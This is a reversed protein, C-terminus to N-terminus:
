KGSDACPLGLDHYLTFYARAMTEASYNRAIHERARAGLRACREPDGMLELMLSALNEPNEPGTLLLCEPETNVGPIGGVDTSVVPLGCAMAELLALPLGEHRSSLVFVDMARLWAATDDRMGALHVAEGLDLERILAELHPREEGDGVLLLRARSEAARVRAFARLLTAHDKAEHLRGVTGFVFLNEGRAEPWPLSAGPGDPSFTEIDIGNPICVVKDAPIRLKRVVYDRVPETVCVIRGIGPAFLRVFMRLWGIRELEHTSHATHVLPVGALRAAPLAVPLVYASHTQVLKVQERVLLRRLIRIGGLRGHQELRLTAHPIEQRELSATLAGPPLYAGYLLGRFRRHGRVLLDLALREAGGINLAVTLQLVTPKGPEGPRPADQEAQRNLAGQPAPRRGVIKAPNGAVLSYPEVPRTVVSGAAVVSGEGVDALIVAGLGIWCDRGISVTEKVGPQLRIPTDPDAYGHQHKGSALCVHSSLITQEGIRAKGINCGVGMSVHRGLSAECSSFTTLFGVSTNQSTDPLILRLVAARWIEGFRGPFLSCFQSVGQFARDGSSVLAALKWGLWVPAALLLMLTQIGRKIM